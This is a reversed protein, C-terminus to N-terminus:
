KVKVRSNARMITLDEFDVMFAGVQQAPRTANTYSNVLYDQIDDALSTAQNLSGTHQLIYLVVLRSFEVVTEPVSTVTKAEDTATPQVETTTTTTSLHIETTTPTTIVTNAGSDDFVIGNKTAEARLALVPTPNSTILSAPAEVEHVAFPRLDTALAVSRRAQSSSDTKVERFSVLTNETQCSANNLNFLAMITFSDLTLNYTTQSVEFLTPLSSGMSANKAGSGNSILATTCSGDDPMTCQLGTYNNSCLCSCQGESSVSFGGNHCPNSKECATEKNERPVAVLFVPLLVALIALLFFVICIIVFVKRSLGCCKKARRPRDPQDNSHLTETHRLNSRGFFVPWSRRSDPTVWGPPPFSALM